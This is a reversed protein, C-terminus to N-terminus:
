GLSRTTWQRLLIEVQMEGQQVQPAQLIGAVFTAASADGLVVTETGNCPCQVQLFFPDVTGNQSGYGAGMVVPTDAQYTIQVWYDDGADGGQSTFANGGPASPGFTNDAITTTSLEVFSGDYGTGHDLMVLGPGPEGSDDFFRMETFWKVTHDYTYRVDVNGDPDTGVMHRRDGDDSVNAVTVDRQIGDWTTTWSLGETLPWRFFKVVDEGQSGALDGKRQLGMFSIPTREDLFTLSRSDSRVIYSDEEGGVVALTFTSTSGNPATGEFRWWRGVEWTPVSLARAGTTGSGDDDRNGDSTQSPDREGTPGAQPESTEGICGAGVTAALVLLLVVPAAHRM